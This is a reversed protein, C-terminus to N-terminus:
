TTGAALTLQIILARCRDCDALHASYRARAAESLAGVALANLEDADLHPLAPSAQAQAVGAASAAKSRRAHRRLLAEIQRDNAKMVAISHVDCVWRAQSDPM